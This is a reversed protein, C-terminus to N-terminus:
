ILFYIPHLFDQSDTMKFTLRFYNIKEEGFRIKLSAFTNKFFLKRSFIDGLIKLSTPVQSLNSYM